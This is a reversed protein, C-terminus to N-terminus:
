SAADMAAAILEAAEVETVESLDSVARGLEREVWAVRKEDTNIQAGRLAATLRRRQSMNMPRVTAAPRDPSSPPPAPARVPESVPEPEPELMEGTEFDVDVIEADSVDNDEDVHDEDVHDIVDRDDLGGPLDVPLGLSPGAAPVETMVDRQARLQERVYEASTPVWKALQRVASKLWMSEPHNQWPSYESSAGQSSAKIKAISAKNLVVVKSTAGDKMRAYAYVLRLQGRDEADWDIEHRPMEDVGPRFEFVDGTYVAEAVVSSVAGARYILEILGQYGIIGLIELQGKAKRPTLYYQETGPELGLRACDLLAALFVGPNNAAAVELETRGDRGRPGKKLAGQALRVWTEPRTMHSPLVSAFSDSYQAVLARPTGDLKEVATQTTTM